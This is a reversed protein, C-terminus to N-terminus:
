LFAGLVLIIIALSGFVLIFKEIPTLLGTEGFWNAIIDLVSVMEAAQQLSLVGSM